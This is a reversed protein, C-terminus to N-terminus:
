RSWSGGGGHETMYSPRAIADLGNCDRDEERSTSEECHQIDRNHMLLGKKEKCLVVLRETPHNVKRATSVTRDPIM